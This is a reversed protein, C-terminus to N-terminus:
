IKHQLNPINESLLKAFKDDPYQEVFSKAIKFRTEDNEIYFLEKTVKPEEKNSFFTMGFHRKNKDYQEIIVAAEKRTIKPVDSALTDKKLDWTLVPEPNLAINHRTLVSDCRFVLHKHEIHNEDSQPQRKLLKKWWSSLQFLSNTQYVLFKAATEAADFTQKRGDNPDFVVWQNNRKLILYVHGKLTLLDMIKLFLVTENSINKIVQNIDDSCNLPIKHKKYFQTGLRLHNNAVGKWYLIEIDSENLKHYPLTPLNKEGDPSTFCKDQLIAIKTIFEFLKGLLRNAETKNVIIWEALRYPDSLCIWTYLNFFEDERGYQMYDFLCYCLGNCIGEENLFPLKSFQNDKQLLEAILNWNDIFLYQPAIPETKSTFM